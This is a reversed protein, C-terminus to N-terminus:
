LTNLINWLFIIFLLSCRSCRSCWFENTHFISSLLVSWRRSSARHTCRALQRHRFSIHFSAVSYKYVNTNNTVKHQLRRRRAYIYRKKQKEIKKRKTMNDHPQHRHHPHHHHHLPCTHTARSELHFSLLVVFLNRKVLVLWFPHCQKTVVRCRCWCSVCQNLRTFFLIHASPASTWHCFEVLQDCEGNKNEKKEFVNANCAHLSITMFDYRM